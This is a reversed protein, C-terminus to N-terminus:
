EIVRPLDIETQSETKGSWITPRNPVIECLDGRADKGGGGAVERPEIRM